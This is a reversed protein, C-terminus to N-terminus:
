LYLYIINVRRGQRTTGQLRSIVNESDVTYDINKRLGLEGGAEIFRDALPSHYRAREVHLNGDHSHYPSDRYEPISNNELKMFYPFVDRYSWGPNGLSAIRDYDEPRGRTYVMGNIISSGGVGKGKQWPCRNDAYSFCATDSPQVHYPWNFEPDNLYQAAAPIFSEAYASEYRGAELLLVTWDPRETLRNAIVSGGPGAGIVVFDYECLLKPMQHPFPQPHVFASWISESHAPTMSSILIVFLIINNYVDMVLRVSVNARHMRCHDVLTLTFHM